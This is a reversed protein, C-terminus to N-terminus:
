LTSIESKAIAIKVKKCVINRGGGARRQSFSGGSVM